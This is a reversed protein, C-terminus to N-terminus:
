KGILKLIDGETLYSDVSGVVVTKWMKVYEKELEELQNSAPLRTKKNLQLQKFSTQFVKSKWKADLGINPQMLIDKKVPIMGFNNLEKLQIESSTMYEILKLALGPSRSKKPIGWFWGGTTIRKFRTDYNQLEVSSPMVSFGLEDVSTLYKKNGSGQLFYSDIQTLFTLYVEGKGMNEWLDEGDWAETWMKYNYINNSVFLSEWKLVETIYPKAGKLVESDNAGMSYMRDMLGLATGSYDKGRHAIKGIGNSKLKWYYGVVYLDFWDWESPDLELVYDPPLGNHNSKKLSENIESKHKQWNVQADNVKTKLFVMIRTEFKRPLYFLSDRFIGLGSLFYSESIKSLNQSDAFSEFPLLLNEEVLKQSMGMPVKVLDFIGPSKLSDNLDWNDRYDFLNIKCQEKKEFVPFIHSQYYTKQEPLMKLLINLEVKPNAWAGFSLLLLILKMNKM